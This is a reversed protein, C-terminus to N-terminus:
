EYKDRKHSKILHENMETSNTKFHNFAKREHPDKHADASHSSLHESHDEKNHGGRGNCKYGKKLREAKVVVITPYQFHIPLTIGFILSM